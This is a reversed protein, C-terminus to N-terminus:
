AAAYLVVKFNQRDGLNKLEVRVFPGFVPTSLNFFDSAPVATHIVHRRLSGDTESVMYGFDQSGKDLVDFNTEGFKKLKTQSSETSFFADVTYKIKPATTGLVQEYEVYFTLQRYDRVDVYDSQYIEGKELNASETLVVMKNENVPSVRLPDNTVNVDVM